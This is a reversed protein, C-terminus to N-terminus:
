KLTKNVQEYEEETYGLELITERGYNKQILRRIMRCREEAQGQQRGQKQGEELAAIRAEEMYKEMLECMVSVGGEEEKLYKM